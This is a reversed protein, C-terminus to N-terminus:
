LSSSDQFSLGFLYYNSSFFFVKLFFFLHSKLSSIKVARSFCKKEGNKRVVEQWETNGGSSEVGMRGEETM